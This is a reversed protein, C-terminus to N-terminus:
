VAVNVLLPDVSPVTAILAVPVVDAPSKPMTETVDSTPLLGSATCANMTSGLQVVGYWILQPSEEGIAVCVGDHELPLGSSLM